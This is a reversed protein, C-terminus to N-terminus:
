GREATCRGHLLRDNVRRRGGLEATLVERMMLQAAGQMSVIGASPFAKKASFGAITTYSGDESLRPVFSRALAMHSTAVDVFIKQWDDASTQWLEKGAWWGGVSVVVHDVHGFEALVKTALQDAEGFTASGAALTRLKGAPEPGVLEVLQDLRGSPVVVTAGARLFARVIGEGVNGTGGPVVVVEGELSPAHPMSM